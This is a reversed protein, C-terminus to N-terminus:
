RLLNCSSICQLALKGNFIGAKCIRNPLHFCFHQQFFVPIINLCGNIYVRSSPKGACRCINRQGNLQWTIQFCSVPINVQPKRNAILINWIARQPCYVKSICINPITHQTRVSDSRNSYCRCGICFLQCLM